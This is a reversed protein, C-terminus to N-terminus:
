SFKATGLQIKIESEVWDLQHFIDQSREFSASGIHTQLFDGMWDQRELVGQHSLVKLGFHIKFKEFDTEKELAKLANGCLDFLGRNGLDDETHATSHTSDSVATVPDAEQAFQHVISAVWFATEIKEYSDRLGDFGNVLHAEQVTQLQTQRPSRSLVLEVYQLPDLIGGAFRKKSKLAGRALASQREGKSSIGHIILNSEGWQTKKLLIVRLRVTISM